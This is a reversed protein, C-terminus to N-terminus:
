VDKQTPGLRNKFTEDYAKIEDRNAKRVSILRIRENRWTYALMVPIGNAVGVSQWREEGYDFRADLATLLPQDFAPLVEDFSLGHKAVNIANKRPDWEFSEANM